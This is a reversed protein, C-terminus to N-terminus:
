VGVVATPLIAAVSTGAALKQNMGLWLALAPVIITGGGIGFLGSLIGAAIGVGILAAPHPRRRALSTM